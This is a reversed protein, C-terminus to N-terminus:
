RVRMRADLSHQLHRTVSDARPPPFEFGAIRCVPRIGRLANTVLVEHWHSRERISPARLQVAIGMQKALEVVLGRAIGPLVQSTSATQLGRDTVVFLNARTTELVQGRASVLLVERGASREALWLALRSTGKLAAATRELRVTELSIGQKREKALGRPLPACTALEFGDGVVIRAQGNRIRNRAALQSLIRSWDHPQPRMGLAAYASHLRALHLDLLPAVGSVLRLTEYLGVGATVTLSTAPVRAQEEAVFRGSLWVTRQKLTSM